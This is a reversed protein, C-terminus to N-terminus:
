GFAGFGLMMLLKILYLGAFPAILDLVLVPRWRASSGRWDEAVSAAGVDGADAGLLVAWEEGEEEGAVFLPRASATGDPQRMVGLDASAGHVWGCEQAHQPRLRPIYCIHLGADPWIVASISVVWVPQLPVCLKLHPICAPRTSLQLDARAHVNVIMWGGVWVRVCGHWSSMCGKYGQSKPPGPCQCWSAHHASQLPCSPSGQAQHTESM